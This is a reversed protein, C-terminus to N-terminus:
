RLSGIEIKSLHLHSKHYVFHCESLTKEWYKPKVRDCDNWSREMSMRMKINSRGSLFGITDNSNKMSM